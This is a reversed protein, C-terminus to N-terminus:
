EYGYLHFDLIAAMVLRMDNGVDSPSALLGKPM